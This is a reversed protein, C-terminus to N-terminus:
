INIHLSYFDLNFAAFPRGYLKHKIRDSESWNAVIGNMSDYFVITNGEISLASFHCPSEKDVIFVGSLSQQNDYKVNIVGIPRGSFKRPMSSKSSAGSSYFTQDM